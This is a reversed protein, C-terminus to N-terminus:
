LKLISDMYYTNERIEVPWLLALDVAVWVALTM